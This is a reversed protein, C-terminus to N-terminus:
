RPEPLVVRTFWMKLSLVCPLFIAMMSFSNPSTPMSSASIAFFAFSCTSSSIMSIIFPQMQQVTLCSRTTTRRFNESLIFCPFSFFSSLTNISVVTAGIRCCALWTLVWWPSNTLWVAVKDVRGVGLQLLGSALRDVRADFEAYSVRDGEGVVFESDPWRMASRRLADGITMGQWDVDYLSAPTETAAM